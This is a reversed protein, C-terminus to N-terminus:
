RPACRNDLCIGYASQIWVPNVGDKTYREGSKVNFVEKNHYEKSSDSIEEPRAFGWGFSINRSTAMASDSGNPRRDGAIAHIRYSLQHYSVRELDNSNTTTRFYRLDARHNFTEFAYNRAAISNVIGTHIVGFFGFTFSLLLVLVLAVPVMEMVAMGKQNKLSPGKLM